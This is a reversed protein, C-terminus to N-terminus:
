CWRHYERPGDIARAVFWDFVASQRAAIGDASWVTAHAHRVARPIEPLQRRVSEAPGSSRRGFNRVLFILGGSHDRDPYSVAVYDVRMIKNALSIAGRNTRGSRLHWWLFWRWRDVGGTRQSGCWAVDGRSCFSVRLDPYLLAPPDVLRRRARARREIRLGGCIAFSIGAAKNPNAQRAAPSVTALPRACWAAIFGYAISIEFIKPTFIRTWALPWGEFWGALWNGVSALSGALLLLPRADTPSVFSLAAAALGCIVAGFGMIPVVVANAILGVLSFQNFHLATLPATGVLAWFSVAVYGAIAEAVAQSRLVGAGGTSPRM